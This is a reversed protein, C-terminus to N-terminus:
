QMEGMQPSASTAAAPQKNAESYFSRLYYTVAQVEAPTLLPFAPMGSGPVGSQLIRAAAPYSPMMQHFNAPHPLLVAGDPGSGDGDDGHCRACDTEYLRRGAEKLVEPSAVQEDPNLSGANGISSVYDAVARFDSAPLMEWSPM